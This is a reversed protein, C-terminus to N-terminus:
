SGTQGLLRKAEVELSIGHKIADDPLSRTGILAVEYPIEEGLEAVEWGLFRHSFESMQRASAGWFEKIVDNVLQVEPGSFLSLDPGRLAIARRQRKGYYDHERYVLEGAAEMKKVTPILKKPAPGNELKQYKQGTVSKGQAAYARFDIYFLLKNLKTAGFPVDGESKEALFLILERFKQDEPKMKTRRM